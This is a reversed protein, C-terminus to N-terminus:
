GTSIDGRAIHNLVSLTEYAFSVLLYQFQGTTGLKKTTILNRKRLLKNKSIHANVGSACRFLQM